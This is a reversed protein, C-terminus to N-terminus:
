PAGPELLSLRYCEWCLDNKAAQITFQIVGAYDTGSPVLNPDSFTKPMEALEREFSAIAEEKSGYHIVAGCKKCTFVTNM